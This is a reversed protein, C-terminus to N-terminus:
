SFGFREKLSTMEEHIRHRLRGHKGHLKDSWYSGKEEISTTETKDGDEVTTTTTTVTITAARNLRDLEGMLSQLRESAERCRERLAEGNGEKRLQRVHRKVKREKAKEEDESEDSSSSSSSSSKDAEGEEGQQLKQKKREMQDLASHIVKLDRELLQDLEDKVHNLRENLEDRENELTRKLMRRRWHRRYHKFVRVLGVGAATALTASVAALLIHKGKITHGRVTGVPKDLARSASDTAHRLAKPAM